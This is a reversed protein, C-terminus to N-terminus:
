LSCLAVDEVELGNGLDVNVEVVDSISVGLYECVLALKDITVPRDNKLHGAVQPTIRLDSRLRRFSLGRETMIDRLKRYTFMM